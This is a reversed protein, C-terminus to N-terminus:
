SDPKELPESDSREFFQVADLFIQGLVKRNLFLILQFKDLSSLPGSLVGRMCSLLSAIHGWRSNSWNNSVGQEYVIKTYLVEQVRVFEGRMTLDLVRPLDAIEGGALNNRLRFGNEILKTRVMGRYPIWWHPGNRLMTISRKKELGKNVVLDYFKIVKNGNLYVYEMDSFSVIANPNAKLAEILSELYRPALIDDHPMIVFFETNVLDLLRNVNGIWGLNDSNSLIRFRSDVRSYAEVLALTRDNSCDDCIICEFDM